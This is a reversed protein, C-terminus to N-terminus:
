SAILTVKKGESDSSAKPILCGKTPTYYRMEEM